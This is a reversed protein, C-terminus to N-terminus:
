GKACNLKLTQPTSNTDQISNPQQNLNTEDMLENIWVDAAIWDILGQGCGKKFDQIQPGQMFCEYCKCGSEFNPLSKKMSMQMFNEMWQYSIKTLKVCILIKFNPWSSETKLCVLELRNKMDDEQNEISWLMCRLQQLIKQTENQQAGPQFFFIASPFFSLLSGFFSLFLLLVYFLVCLLIFQKTGNGNDM